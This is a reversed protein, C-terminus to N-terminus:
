IYLILYINYNNAITLNWIIKFIKKNKIKKNKIKIKIKIKNIKKKEECKLLVEFKIIITILIYM